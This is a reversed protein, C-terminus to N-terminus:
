STTRYSLPIERPLLRIQQKTKDEPDSIRLQLQDFEAELEGGTYRPNM